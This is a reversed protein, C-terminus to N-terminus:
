GGVERICPYGRSGISRRPPILKWHKGACHQLTYGNVFCRERRVCWLPWMKSQFTMEAHYGSWTRRCSTWTHVCRLLCLWCKWVMQMVPCTWCHWILSGHRNGNSWGNNPLGTNLSITMFGSVHLIDTLSSWFEWWNVWSRHSREQNSVLDSRIVQMRLGRMPIRLQTPSVPHSHHGFPKWVHSMEWLTLCSLMMRSKWCSLWWHDACAHSLIHVSWFKSNNSTLCWHELFHLAGSVWHGHQSKTPTLPWSRYWWIFDRWGSEQDYAHQSQLLFKLM